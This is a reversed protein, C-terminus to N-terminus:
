WWRSCSVSQPSRPPSSPSPPTTSGAAHNIRTPAFRTSPSRSITDARGPFPDNPILAELGRGLGAKRKTTM